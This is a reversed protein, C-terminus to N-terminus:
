SNLSDYHAHLWGRASSLVRLEGSLLDKAMERRIAFTSSSEDVSSMSQLDQVSSRHSQVMQNLHQLLIHYAEIERKKSKLPWRALRGDNRSAEMVMEELEKLSTASLVRAFAIFAPSIGKMKGRYTKVQKITFYEAQNKRKPFLNEHLIKSKEAHLPDDSSVNMWLKVQDYINRPITFGFDLLLTANSFKGYRIMVEEGIDYSRDAMIEAREKKVDIELLSRSEGDHNIYDAFPIMSVGGAPNEWARSTVLSRAHMFNELHVEGFLDRYKEMVPKLSSFEKELKSKREITEKYVASNKIMQLEEESWLISNHMMDLRPLSNIYPAWESREGLNLEALLVVALHSEFDIENPILSMIESPLNKVSIQVNYPVKMICDGERIPKSAYVSWGLDSTGLSLVSSIETGAKQTLWQLIGDHEKNLDLKQIKQQPSSLSSVFRSSCTVPRLRLLRRSFQASLPVGAIVMARM